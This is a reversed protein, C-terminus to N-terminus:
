EFFALEKLKSIFNAIYTSGTESWRFGLRYLVQLTYSVDADDLGLGKVDNNAAYALLPVLSDSKSGDALAVQLASTMEEQSVAKIEYGVKCIEEVVDQILARHPNVPMFCVCDKPTIALALVVKALEDIPSFEMEKGLLDFSIKGLVKYARFTNMINNTRFNIQFKGDRHRPALNGVRLVKANLGNKLIEEYIFREAMFKSHVYQNDDIVQGAFFVRENFKFNEPPLGDKRGGIVSGTSIHVLRASNKECWRVLNKVSDVNTREIENGAAFHKVSAACNIVTMASTPVFNKLTDPNTADGEIVIIRSDFLEAYDKSFYYTLTSKLRQAGDANGKARVLCYIKATTNTLLEGLVHSGLYGTAGALLVDGLEQRSGIQFTEMTNKALLGNIASYDYGDKGVEVIQASIDSKIEASINKDAEILDALKRPTTNSFVDNYVIQYNKKGAAIVVKMALISSGGIEFFDDEVGVKELGLVEAFINCFDEQAKTEPAVYDARQLTPKPLAKKDVKQNVTLPIKEIQMYAVPVMYAPKQSKIFDTLAAIDIQKDSTFFAALYKGGGAYDYAQVTVDKIGDFNRIVTEVEKTEIRFGRIKVQGDKRGVFEVDGSQRYRVIDGTHYMRFDNFPCKEFAEETKDPLNLYGRAVQPGSLCFEGAAGAPLRHGAKDLIYAHITSMPKGIPINPEWKRIPFLSVGCCNETPGYGNVITYSLGEPEVPPLKEGGMVLMRLSKHRPYNQLFQVGVQTTLLLATIGVQEFYAALEDLNMRIEEPILYVTGGNLLTCFVDSMNVDFGFSAYAAIKDDRTYFNVPVVGHAYAVLNRHELQCGKPLGTSGSTYLVVFLNEPAPEPLSINEEAASYLESTTIVEGKYEDVLGRLNDEAILLKAGADKVMFNLREPPYAPDLPEYACGTKLVALPLIFVNENRSIIIAVVEEALDTKGTVTCMKKYIKAALKDTLEDLESYTYEKECYVAAVKDPYAAATRRFVSVATDNKDFNLDWARNFTDLMQWQNKDILSIESLTDKVLLGKVVNEVCTALDSMMERSYLATDYTVQVAANQETGVIYIGVPLKAKDLALGEIEVRGGATQYEEATVGIQYAYSINPRLNYKAAIRAFPYNEHDITERFNKAVRKIFAIVKEKNDVNEVLPLTNVFMGMTNNILLNGRGNSITAITVTDECVFRSFVIYSAALYVAAPTVGIKKAFEKVAAFNSPVKVTSENHEPNEAYVDPLLQTADESLAMREAFFKETDSLLCEDKAYDYYSYTEAEIEKGDLAVCLQSLFIDTSVGDSILHHIDLLLYLSDAQVIEFRILPDEDLKFPRVFKERYAAFEKRSMELRPIELTFNPIPEQIVDNNENTTFRCAIYSHADVVARVAKELKDATVAAPFKVALPVNYITSDPNAQCEAYVGQQAFTLLCSLKETPKAVEIETTVEATLLKQLIKNEVSQITGNAILNRVQIQVDYKKYIKTALRIASISTLGLEGFIDTVGFDQTGLIEAAIGKLDKELVNLPAVIENKAARKIEPKPLVRRNVKGNPNLPIKEIQLTVAPVMYPPKREAIFKNLEDVSIKEASVVYAAIFKGGSPSDFSVVTADKVAPFERIVAEVETLEIRFGRIKVQGDRRGIFEINGDARYRVIDGTRYARVYDGGDFPNKIFVEATKEPRNLYGAGVQIGAAILEGCAGIPVRHLNKDVVYLKVNDLPKGIPINKYVKDVQFISLLMTTESPGYGNHLVFNKPPKLTVLKEGAATLHKLSNNEMYSAFQHGVQTTMFVHTINNQEFYKNMDELDLRIEDSIIYIAAGCTLSSYLDFMHMDFGFGAYLAARNDSNLSYYRHHWNINCVLNAHTLRVGKPIGTSGSTYLLVFIDDPANVYEPSFNDARPIEDTFLIEGDFDTILPRLEKTTILIKAAADKIMFNLREPPYTPDLPQYACGSKLAGLPALAMFECRPILISVVDGKGINKSLIYAAIDNSIRNVERYSFKKDEFVVAVNDPYKEVTNNFLSIVTQSKDYDVATQNFSNLRTLEAADCLEIAALKEKAIFESLCFDYARVFGRIFEETYLGDRCNVRYILKGNEPHIMFELKAKAVDLPMPIERCPAACFTEVKESVDGQYVFLIDADIGLDKSIEAFSYVGYALSDTLQRGIEGIYNVVSKDAVNCLVPYTRVFMSVSEAFRTDARGNNITTFISDARASYRALLFGFAATCIANESVGHAACFDQLTKLDAKGELSLEDCSKDSEDVNALPLCDPECGSFIETYYAKAKQYSPSTRLEEELLAADWGTFKESAPIQGGYATEIDRMLIQSSVGDFIIHHFDFYVFIKDDDTKAIVIRFLRDKLLDYPRLLIKKLEALNQRHIESIDQPTFSIEKPRRQRLEGEDTQYFETFLYPHALCAACIAQKIKPIDVAAGLELLTPINYICTDPNTVTEVFIGEQTKTVPYDELVAFNEAKSDDALFAALKETTDYQIFNVFSLPKSFAKSIKMMFGMIALSNFGMEEFTTTVGFNLKGGIIEDIISCIKKEVDNKPPIIEASSASIDPKPLAKRDVKGNRNIPIKEIQVTVSPVMYYPKQSRIFDNLARIDVKDVSVVYAAMFKAGGDDDFTTVAVDAIGEFDRIVSEVEGLEIRFGRVKVQRDGRGLYDVTFNGFSDQILRVVDGTRYARTGKHNFFVEATKEPLNMYGRGVGLGGIILEGCAGAPLEHGYSDMVWAYVNAAPVGITVRKEGTMVRAICSITTETPGYGNIIVADPSTNRVKKYLTAPFAEAGIDYVKVSRLAEQMENFQLINALFSPTICVIEVREAKLLEALQPPNHIEDESAMVAVQGHTLPIHLEMLSVDFSIAALGLIVKGGEVILRTEMNKENADLFNCLNGHEIMVGKPRGTSGSTYIVYALNAASVEIAPNEASDNQCLEEVTLVKYPKDDSFLERRNELVDNTTICFKCGADRLCIDIRDNPYGATMPLFAGGAKWVGYECIPVASTRPLVLGIVDDPCIKKAILSHALRNSIRNLEDYTLRENGAVFALKDPNIASLEEFLEHAPRFKVPFTTRNFYGLFETGAACPEIERIFNKTMLQRLIEEYTKALTSIFPESYKGANYEVRLSLGDDDATLDMSLPSENTSSDLIEEKVPRGCFESNSRIKGHWAFMPNDMVSCINTVEAFSFLSNVRCARLEDSLARVFDQTTTDKNWTVYVPLTKVFMGILNTNEKKRGNHITSFLAESQNAYLGMLIAFAANTM